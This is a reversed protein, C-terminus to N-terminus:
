NKNNIFVFKINLQINTTYKYSQWYVQFPLNDDINTKRKMFRIREPVLEIEVYKDNLFRLAKDFSINFYRMIFSVSNTGGAGCQFCKYLNRKLSVIFYRENQTLPKCQPCRGVHICGSKKLPVFNSIVKLMDLKYLVNNIDSQNYIYDCKLRKRNRGFIM